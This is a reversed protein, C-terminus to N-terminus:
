SPKTFLDVALPVNYEFTRLRRTLVPLGSAQVVAAFAVRLGDVSRYDSFKEEMTERGAAGAPAEYRQALILDTAPDLLLVVAKMAGGGVGLATLGRGDEVVDPLRTAPVKGDSLALLLGIVDRQVTSRMEDAEAGPAPRLGRDDNVWCEGGSFVRVVPGSATKADVRFSGPYQVYSTTDITVSGSAAGLLTTTATARVTRISRLKDLGGKAQVARAIVDSVSDKAAKAAQSAPGPNQKRAPSAVGANEVGV